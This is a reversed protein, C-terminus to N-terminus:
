EPINSHILTLKTGEKIEELKIILISYEDNEDFETTRWTQVIEQNKVLKLNEGFIYGGWTTFDDGVNNGCEAEGGTMKTHGESNLWANYIKAPTTNFVATLELSETM